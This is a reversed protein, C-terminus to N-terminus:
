GASAVLTAALASSTLGARRYSPSSAALMVMSAGHAEDIRRSWRRTRAGPRLALAAAQGLHRAGLIRVVRRGSPTVPADVAHLVRDPAALLALAWAARLLLSPDPM